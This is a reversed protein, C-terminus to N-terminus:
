LARSSAAPRQALIDLAAELVDAPKRALAQAGWRKIDIGGAVYGWSAAIFPVGANAAAQADRADDGVYITRSADAACAAIGAFIAEPRPKMAGLDSGSVICGTKPTIGKAACLKSALAGAKNTVIGWVFGKEDLSSLLEPIGAFLTSRESIHAEYHTLFAAKREEFDPASPGIRLAAWLMGRAGKGASERLAGFPLPALGAAERLFNASAGLDPASDVLTGDLDFLICGRM